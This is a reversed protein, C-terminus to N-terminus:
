KIIIKKHSCETNDAIVMYVGKSLGVTSIYHIGQGAIKQTIVTKGTIDIIRININEDNNNYLAINEGQNVPNPYLMISDSTNIQMESEANTKFAPSHLVNSTTITNSSQYAKLRVISNKIHTGKKLKIHNGMFSKMYSDRINVSMEMSDALQLDSLGCCGEGNYNTKPMFDRSSIVDNGGFYYGVQYLKAEGSSLSINDEVVDDLVNKLKVGSRLNVHFSIPNTTNKNFFWIYVGNDEDGFYNYYKNTMYTVVLTSPPSNTFPQTSDSFINKTYGDNKFNTWKNFDYLDCYYDIGSHDNVHYAAAFNLSLLLSSHDILKKHLSSLEEKANEKYKLEYTYFVNNINAQTCYADFGQWYAIGKAGYALAANISYKIENLSAANNDNPDPPISEWQKHSSLATLVYMFPISNITSMMGFDYLTKFFQTSRGYKSPYCDFSLLNPKALTIHKQLYNELYDTGNIQNCEPLLNVYRLLSPNNHDNNRAMELFPTVHDIPLNNFNPEDGANYGIVNSNSETYHNFITNFKIKYGIPDNLYEDYENPLRVGNIDKSYIIPNLITHVTMLEANKAYEYYEDPFAANMELFISNFNYENKLTNFYAQPAWIPKTIFAQNFYTQVLFQNLQANIKPVIVFSSLMLCLIMYINKM